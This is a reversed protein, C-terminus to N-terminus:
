RRMMNEGRQRALRAEKPKGAANYLAVVESWAKSIHFPRAMLFARGADSRRDVKVRRHQTIADELLQALEADFGKGKAPPVIEYLVSLLIPAAQIDPTDFVSRALEIARPVRGLNAEATALRLRDHVRRDESKPNEIAVLLAARALEWNKAALFVEAYEWAQDIPIHDLDITGITEAAYEQIRRLGEEESIEGKVVRAMTADSASKLNRRLVEPQLLGVKTPDNPDPPPEM